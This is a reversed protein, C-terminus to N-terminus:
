GSIMFLKRKVGFFSAIDIIFDFYICVPQYTIKQFKEPNDTVEKNATPYTQRVFYGM